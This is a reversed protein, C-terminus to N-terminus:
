PGRPQFHHGALNPNRVTGLSCFLFKPERENSTQSIADVLFEFPVQTIPLVAHPVYPKKQSPKFSGNHQIRHHRQPGMRTQRASVSGSKTIVAPNADGSEANWGIVTLEEVGLAAYGLILVVLVLRRM